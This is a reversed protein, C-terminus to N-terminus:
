VAMMWDTRHVDTVTQNLETVFCSVALSCHVILDASLGM